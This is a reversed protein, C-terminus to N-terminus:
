HPKAGTSGASGDVSLAAASLYCSVWSIVCQEKTSEEM